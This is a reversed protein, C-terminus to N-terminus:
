PDERLAKKADMAEAEEPYQWRLVVELYVVAVKLHHRDLLDIVGHATDLYAAHEDLDTIDESPDLESPEISM